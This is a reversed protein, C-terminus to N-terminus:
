LFFDFRYNYGSHGDCKAKARSLRMQKVGPHKERIPVRTPRNRDLGLEKFYHDGNLGFSAGFVQSSVRKVLDKVREQMVTKNLEIETVKCNETTIAIQSVVKGNRIFATVFSSIWEQRENGRPKESPLTVRVESRSRFMTPYDAEMALVELREYVNEPTLLEAYASFCLFIVVLGFAIERLLLETELRQSENMSTSANELRM